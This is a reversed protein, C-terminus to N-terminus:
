KRRVVARPLGRDRMLRACETDWLATLWVLMVEVVVWTMVGIVMGLLTAHMRPWDSGLADSLRAILLPAIVAACAIALVRRHRDLWGVRGALQQIRSRERM